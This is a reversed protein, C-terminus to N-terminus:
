MNPNKYGVVQMAGAFFRGEVWKGVRTNFIIGACLSSPTNKPAVWFMMFGCFWVRTNFIIGVCPPPPQTSKPAGYGVVFSWVCRCPYLFLVRVSLLANEQPAGWFMMYGCVWVRTNFIIGACRPPLSYCFTASSHRFLLSLSFILLTLQAMLAVRCWWAFRQALCPLGQERRWVFRWGLSAGDLPM